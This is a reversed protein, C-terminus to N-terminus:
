KRVYLWDLRLPAINHTFFVIKRFGFATSNNRGGTFCADGDHKVVVYQLIEAVACFEVEPVLLKLRMM